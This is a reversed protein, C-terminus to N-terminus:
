KCTYGNLCLDLYTVSLCVCVSLIVAVTVASRLLTVRCFFRRGSISIAFSWRMVVRYRRTMELPISFTVTSLVAEGIDAQHTHCKRPLLVCSRNEIQRGIQWLVRSAVSMFETPAYWCWSV